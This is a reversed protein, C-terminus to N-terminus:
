HIKPLVQEGFVTIWDEQNPGVNHLYIRDFGLDAYRQIEARHVDPDESIVVGDQLNGADVLRAIQEFAHPSRIDGKAFRMGGMPWHELAHGVALEATPAWSLNLQLVRLLPEDGRGAERASAEFRDLVHAVRDYGANLTIIGDAVRGARRATTPGATTVLLPPAADPMTWLRTSELQFWRGDFRTDRGHLSAAFLKKVLEISEFMRDIREAPEPWYGGVVHENLAEGPGIGVWVRGEHMAALTAAAQALTVPHYRYGPVAMAPGLDGSTRAALASLVPWVFASHGHLPLWPQFHDTAMTGSFGALEAAAALEVAHNPHVQELMACYGVSVEGARDARGTM